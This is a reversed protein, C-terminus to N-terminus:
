ASECIFDVLEGVSLDEANKAGLEALFKSFPFDRDFRTRLADGLVVADISTMGLDQFFLTEREIPESYERGQFNCLLERLEQLVFKPNIM